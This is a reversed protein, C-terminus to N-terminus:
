YRWANIVDLTLMFGEANATSAVRGEAGGAPDVDKDAPCAFM